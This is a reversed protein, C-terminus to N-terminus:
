ARLPLHADATHRACVCHQRAQRRPQCITRHLTRLPRGAVLQARGDAVAARRDHATRLRITRPAARLALRLSGRARHSESDFHDMPPPARVRPNGGKEARPRRLAIGTRKQVMRRVCARTPNGRNTQGLPTLTRCRPVVQRLDM